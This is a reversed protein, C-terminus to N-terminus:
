VRKTRVAAAAPRGDRARRPIGSLTARRTPLPADARASAARLGASRHRMKEGLWSGFRATIADLGRQMAKSTDRESYVALLGALLLAGLLVIATGLWPSVPLIQWVAYGADSHLLYLPYTLGGLWYWIPSAPLRWARLSLTLFIAHALVVLAGVIWLAGPSRLYVWKEQYAVLWWMSNNPTCADVVALACSCALPVFYRWSPGNKRLLYFYCGSIFLPGFPYISGFELLYHVKEWGDPYTLTSVAAAGLWVLLWAEVRAMQRILLLFLTLAYFRMEVTLTWYVHDVYNQHFVTPLMTLNAVIRGLPLAQGSLLLVVSTVLMCIWFTPYLRAVRSSIFGVVSRREATMLIVFGSIMFFLHVGVFGFGAFRQLFQVDNPWSFLHYLVVMCAASFRLLDLEPIRKSESKM